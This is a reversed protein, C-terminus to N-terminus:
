GPVGSWSEAVRLLFGAEHENGSKGDPKECTGESPHISAWMCQGRHTDLLRPNPSERIQRCPYTEGRGLRYVMTPRRTNRCRPPPMQRCRPCSRSVLGSPRDAPGPLALEPLAIGGMCENAGMGEWQVLADLVSPHPISLGGFFSRSRVWEQASSRSRSMYLVCGSSHRQFAAPISSSIGSRGTADRSGPPHGFEWIRPVTHNICQHTQRWQSDHEHKM